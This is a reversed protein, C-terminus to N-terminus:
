WFSPAEFRAWASTVAIRIPSSELTRGTSEQGGTQGLGSAAADSGRFGQEPAQKLRSYPKQVVRHVPLRPTLAYGSRAIGVTM